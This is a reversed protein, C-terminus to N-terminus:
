NTIAHNNINIHALMCSDTRTYCEQWQQREEEKKIYNQLRKMGKVNAKLLSAESPSLSLSFFLSFFLSPFFLSFLPFSLLISLTCHISIVHITGTEWTNHLHSWSLWKVLYQVELKDGDDMGEEDDGGGIGGNPHIM